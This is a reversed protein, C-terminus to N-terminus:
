NHEGRCYETSFGGQVLAARSQRSPTSSHQGNTGPEGWYIPGTDWAARKGELSVQKGNSEMTLQRLYVPLRKVCQEYPLVAVTEGRAASLQRHSQCLQKTHYYKKDNRAKRGLRRCNRNV